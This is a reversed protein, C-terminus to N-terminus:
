TVGNAKFWALCRKWGDEAAEKRYSPRYDANFAHPADPYVHIQSKAAAPNGSDKLAARMKEVQEQPIGPDAGGYLGLVPGHLQKVVDPPNNPTNASPKYGLPGYWAVAAKIAPNHADYLWAIRGGWCFGTIGLKTADAKGEGKAFAATSDLDNMVQEDPTQSVFDKMLTQIDSVKTADGKRFYLDPAIAYYGVKAFRRCIDAIHAHVGFIEQVVLITGFGTGSAPMARYAMMEKGDKTKVQVTGAALGDSPTVIMTQAQIPQAALAFTTGLAASGLLARRRSVIQDFSINDGDM